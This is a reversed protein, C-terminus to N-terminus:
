ISARNRGVIDIIYENIKKDEIAGSEYSIEYSDKNMNAYITQDSDCSKAINPNHTM